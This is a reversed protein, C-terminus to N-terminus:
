DDVPLDMALGVVSVDKEIGDSASQCSDLSDMLEIPVVRDDASKNSVVHIIKLHARQM